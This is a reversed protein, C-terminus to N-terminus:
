HEEQERVGSLGAVPGDVLLRGGPLVLVDQGAALRGIRVALEGRDLVAQRDAVVRQVPVTAVVVVLLVLGEPDGALVRGARDAPTAAATATADASGSIRM